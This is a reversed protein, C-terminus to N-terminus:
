TLAHRQPQLPSASSICMAAHPSLHARPLCSAAGDDADLGAGFWASCRVAELTREHRAEAEPLAQPGANPQM